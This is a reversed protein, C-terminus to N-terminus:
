RWRAAALDLTFDTPAAGPSGARHAHRPRVRSVDLVDPRVVGGHPGPRRLGAAAAAHGRELRQGGVGARRELEVGGDGNLYAALDARLARAERDPYRNLTARPRPSPRPSRRRRGGRAAPVPERQHQARGAVDLQPAGYPESAACSTACRCRRRAGTAGTVRAFRVAVAAGHAPCTRPRPWRSCTAARGRGAGRRDYEVLHVGKLFSQVSLGSSHRARAAPPCCTTRAPATTASRCRRTRRRRLHLRRQAGARGVGRADATIVELHEAAYADVVALGQELDRGARDGVARRVAGHPRARRAQDLAVQREVEADVADALRLSDTVLVSAAMPDHEAQSILDAAVHAPTPPTTPWCRSRPRAPRPTSASSARAAAAQGRRRLHQGPRHGRRGARHRARRRRLRAARDGPRRRRRVGRRRRAARLRGPDDPAPLGGFEKQPPRSCARDLEVGAVQAPVVNM